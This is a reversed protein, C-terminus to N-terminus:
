IARVARLEAIDADSRGLERLITDTHAGLAPVPDVVPEVGAIDVPPALVALEGDRTRYPHLAARM